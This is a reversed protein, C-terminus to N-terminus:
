KSRGKRKIACENCMYQPKEEIRMSYETEKNCDICKGVVSPERKDKRSGELAKASELDEQTVESSIFKIPNPSNLVSTNEMEQAELQIRNEPISKKVPKKGSTKKVGKKNKSGPPRGRKRRPEEVVDEEAIDEEPDDEDDIYVAAVEANPDVLIDLVDELKERVKAIRSTVEEENYSNDEPAVLEAGAMQNYGEVVLEWDCEIIGDRIKAIASM